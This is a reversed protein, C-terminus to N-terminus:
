GMKRFQEPYKLKEFDVDLDNSFPMNIRTGDKFHVPLFGCYYVMGDNDVAAIGSRVLNKIFVDDDIKVRDRGNFTVSAGQISVKYQSIPKIKM